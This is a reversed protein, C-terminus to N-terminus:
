PQGQLCIGVLWLVNVKGTGNAGGNELQQLGRQTQGSQSGLNRSASIRAVSNRRLM